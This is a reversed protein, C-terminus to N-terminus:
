SGVEPHLVAPQWVLAEGPGIRSAFAELIEPDTEVNAIMYVRGPQEDILDKAPCRVIDPCSGATTAITTIKM